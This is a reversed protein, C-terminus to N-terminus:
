DNKEQGAVRANLKAWKIRFRISGNGSGNVLVPILHTEGKLAFSLELILEDPKTTEAAKKLGAGIGTVARALLGLTDGFSIETKVGEVGISSPQTPAVDNEMQIAEVYVPDSANPLQLRRIKTSTHM